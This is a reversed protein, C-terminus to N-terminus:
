TELLDVKIVIPIGSENHYKLKLHVHLAVVDLKALFSHGFIDEYLGRGEVILFHVDLLKM